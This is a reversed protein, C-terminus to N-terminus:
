RIGYLCLLAAWGSPLTNPAEELEKGYKVSMKLFFKAHLFAEVFVKTHGIWNKNHELEFKRGKAGAEIIQQFEYCFTQGDPAISNLAEIIQRTVYQLEYVKFSHYYFRYIMDEYVWPSGVEDLLKQLRPLRAKINSLLQNEKQKLQQMEEFM